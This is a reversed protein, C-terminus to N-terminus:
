INGKRYINYILWMGFFGALLFGLVGFLPVGGIQPRMDTRLTLASAIIISSTMLTFALRNTAVNILSILEDSFESELKIGVYGNEAIDLINSIKTPSRQFLRSWRSVNSYLIRALNRPYYSKIIVNKVYPEVTKAFDFNPDMILEFGEVTIVGRVLLTINYPLKVRNKRLIGVLEEIIASPDIHKLVRGYYKSRFNEIDTKFSRTDADSYLGGMDQFIEVFLSMDGQVFAKMADLLMDRTETSLHGMMGYDLFAVKGDKMILINGPHLDAHFFGDEFVQKLFSYAIALAIESKNFRRKELLNVHSGKIGEIYELTLVRTNTYDWYVKPVYIQTSDKFNAAFNDANWGEQIYDLEELISRALEDVIEIPRYLKAESIHENVLRAISYMIDLDSKIVERIGPRQIKVVVEHNNKVKARHVQGISASAFPEKDFYDFLEEISHGLEEKIILEVIEYDFPPVDDQLKAFEDAYELPIVDHRMSLIQGFKVYTPGLEELIKRARVPGPIKLQDMKEKKRFRYVVDSFSTLGIQDAIYGFGNRQLVEIIQNYRKLTSYHRFKKFVM